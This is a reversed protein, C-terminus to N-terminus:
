LNSGAERAVAAERECREEEERWAADEAEKEAMQRRARESRAPHHARDVTADRRALGFSTDDNHDSSSLLQEKLRMDLEDAAVDVVQAQALEALVRRRADARPKTGDLRRASSTGEVDPPASHSARKTSSGGSKLPRLGKSNTPPALNPLWQGKDRPPKEGRETEKPGARARLAAISRQMEEDFASADALTRQCAELLVASMVKLGNATTASTNHSYTSMSAFRGETLVALWGEFIERMSSLSRM